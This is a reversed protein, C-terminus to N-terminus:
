RRPRARRDGNGKHEEGPAPMGLAARIERARDSDRTLDTFPGGSIMRKVMRDFAQGIQEAHKAMAREASEGLTAIERQVQTNIRDAVVGNLLENAERIAARLDKIAAHAARTEERIAAREEPTV